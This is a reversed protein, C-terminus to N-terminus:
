KTKPLVALELDLEDLIKLWGSAVGNRHGTLLHNVHQRSLGAREALETQTVRQRLMAIRTEERIRDNVADM